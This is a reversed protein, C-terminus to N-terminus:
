RHVTHLLLNVLLVLLPHGDSLPPRINGQLVDSTLSLNRLFCQPPDRGLHPHLLHVIELAQAIQDLGHGTAELIHKLSITSVCFIFKNWIVSSIYDIKM